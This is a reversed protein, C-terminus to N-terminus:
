KTVTAIRATLWAPPQKTEYPTIAPTDKEAKARIAAEDVPASTKDKTLVHSVIKAIKATREATRQAEVQAKIKAQDREWDSKATDSFKVIDTRGTLQQVAMALAVLDVDVRKGLYVNESYMVWPMPQDDRPAIKEYNHASLQTINGAEDRVKLESSGAVDEAYLRVGDSISAAPPTAANKIDISNLSHTLTKASGDWDSLTGMAQVSGASVVPASKIYVNDSKVEILHAEDASISRFNGAAGVYTNQGLYTSGNSGASAIAFLVGNGGVQLAKFATSWTQPTVGLGLNKGSINLDSTLTWTGGLPLAANPLSTAWSPAGGTNGVLIQNNTGAATAEVAGGSGGGYLVGYQTADDYILDLGTPIQIDGAAVGGPVGIVKTDAM